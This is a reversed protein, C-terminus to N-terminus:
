NYNILLILINVILILCDIMSQSMLDIYFLTTIYIIFISFLYLVVIIMVEFTLSVEHKNQNALLFLGILILSTLLGSIYYRNYYFLVSAVSIASFLGNSIAFISFITSNFTKSRSRSLCM